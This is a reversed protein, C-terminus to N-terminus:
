FCVGPDGCPPTTHPLSYGQKEEAGQDQRPEDAVWTKWRLVWRVGGGVFRWVHKAAFHVQHRYIERHAVFLFLQGALQLLALEPHEFVALLLGDLEKGVVTIHHEIN